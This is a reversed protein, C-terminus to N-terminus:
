EDGELIEHGYGESADSTAKVETVEEILRGGRRDGGEDGGGSRGTVLKIKAPLGMQSTTSRRNEEYEVKNHGYFSIECLM